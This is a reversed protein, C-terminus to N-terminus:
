SGIFKSIQFVNDHNLRVKQFIRKLAVGWLHLEFDIFGSTACIRIGSHGETSIKRWKKTYALKINNSLPNLNYEFIIKIGLVHIDELIIYLIHDLSFIIQVERM